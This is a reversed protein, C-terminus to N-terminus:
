NRSFKTNLIKFMNLRKERVRGKDVKDSRKEM